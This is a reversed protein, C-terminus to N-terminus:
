DIGIIKRRYEMLVTDSWRGDSLKAIKEKKGIERFGCSRHLKISGVNDIIISSYFSWVGEAESVKIAETM